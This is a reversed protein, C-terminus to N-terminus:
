EKKKEKKKEEGAQAGREVGAGGPERGNVVVRAALANEGGIPSALLQKAAVACRGLGRAFKGLVQRKGLPIFDSAGDLARGVVRRRGRGGEGPASLFDERAEAGYFLFRRPASLIRQASSTEM